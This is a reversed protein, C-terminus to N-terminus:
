LYTQITDSTKTVEDTCRVDIINNKKLKADGFRTNGGGQKNFKRENASPVIPVSYLKTGRNLERQRTGISICLTAYRKIM